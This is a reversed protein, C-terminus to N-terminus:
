KAGGKAAPPVEDVGDLQGLDIRQEGAAPKFAFTGAAIKPNSTWRRVHTTYQPAMGVTKSTIIMKCPIKEPGQRVWLQWDTDFNRFAVHDCMQGGVVGQGIFKAELVDAVLVSYSDRILLDAAPVALGLQNHIADVLEDTTGKLPVQAYVNGSRDRVTFTQGDFIFDAVVYGGTRELRVKDPRQLKLISTSTFAIKEMEPTVVELSTDVTTDISGLSGIYDSMAKLLGRARSDDAQASGASLVAVALLAARLGARYRTGVNRM